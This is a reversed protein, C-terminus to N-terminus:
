KKKKEVCKVIFVRGGSRSLDKFKRELDDKNEVLLFKGIHHYGIDLDLHVDGLSVLLMMEKGIKSKAKSM